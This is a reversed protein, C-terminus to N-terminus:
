AVGSALSIPARHAILENGQRSPYGLFDQSGPRTYISPPTYAENSIRTRPQPFEGMERSSDFTRLLRGGKATIFYTPTSTRRSDILDKSHLNDIKNKASERSIDLKAALGAVTMSDVENFLRLAEITAAQYYTSM